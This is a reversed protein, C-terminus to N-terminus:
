LVPHFPDLISANERTLFLAIQQKLYLPLDVL